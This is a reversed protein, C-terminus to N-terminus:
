KLKLALDMGSAVPLHYTVMELTRNFRLRALAQSKSMMRKTYTNMVFRNM